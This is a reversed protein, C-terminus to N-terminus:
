HILLEAILRSAEVRLNTLMRPMFAPAENVRDFIAAYKPAQGSPSLDGVDRFIFRGTRADISVTVVKDACLIIRLALMEDDDVLSVVGPGAFVSRPAGGHQLQIQYRGLVAKAHQHIVKRLMSEFDLDNSNVALTGEPLVCDQATVNVNLAGPTPEWHVEFKLGEVDDSPKMTGLKSKQQLEALALARSSRKGSRFLTPCEVISITVTGGLLPLKAQHRQPAQPPPRRVWYSVTLVKRNPSMNVNLYEGWGLSRMREAQYWLIELQYSLAMMQLFNFLRILPADAVNEPLEPKTQPIVGPPLPEQPAPNPIYMGLQRDVEESIFRKMIGTPIRPFDQTGTMDGGIKLLFEVHVFFWGDQPQAGTLCISTEFLNPATFYVRGDAIRHRAMEIPIIERLRLRYRIVDQIDQLTKVVQSDTLPTPPIISKKIATPLRRYAGTTLVDLSTLLDHNRLRAPDLSERAYNLGMIADEFQRNQDMLFATINMCKQVTDADRSWKAVAYLKVIQKKTKVVWDALMRKRATDSSNPLTEAMESLEAYITQVVRSLLEGLPIQGDLVSPLERELEEITPELAGNAYAGNSLPNQPSPSPPAVVM